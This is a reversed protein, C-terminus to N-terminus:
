PRALSLAPPRALALWRSPRGGFESRYAYRDHTHWCEGERNCAVWASASTSAIAIAAASLLASAALKTIAKM